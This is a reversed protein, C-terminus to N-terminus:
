IKKKFYILIGLAFMPICLLQGMSFFDFFLGLHSDPERFFELSFRFLSYLILFFSTSIGFKKEKYYQVCFFYMIVFLIIGEFLAEYLQSPHRPLNDITPYIM